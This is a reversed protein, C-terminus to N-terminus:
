KFSRKFRNFFDDLKLNKLFLNPKMIRYELINKVNAGSNGGYLEYMFIM